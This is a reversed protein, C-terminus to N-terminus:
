QKLPKFNSVSEIRHVRGGPKLVGNLSVYGAAGHAEWAIHYDNADLNFRARFSGEEADFVLLQGPRRRRTSAMLIM